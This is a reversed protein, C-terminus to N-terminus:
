SLEFAEVQYPNASTGIAASFSGTGGTESLSFTNGFQSNANDYGLYTSGNNYASDYVMTARTLGAPLGSISYSGITSFAGGPGVSYPGNARDSETFLYYHGNCLKVMSMIPETSNSTSVSLDSNSCSTTFNLTTPNQM